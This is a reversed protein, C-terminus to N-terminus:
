KARFKDHCGKCTAGLALSAERAPLNITPRVLLDWFADIATASEGQAALWAGLSQADVAPDALDLAGLRQATLAAHLRDRLPLWAFRLLSPALHAPRPLPSPRAPLRM